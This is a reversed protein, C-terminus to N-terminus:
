PQGPGAGGTLRLGERFGCPDCCFMSAPFFHKMLMLNDQTAAQGRGEVFLNKDQGFAPHGQSALMPAPNENSYVQQQLSLKWHM